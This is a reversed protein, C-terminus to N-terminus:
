FQPVQIRVRHRLANMKEAGSWNPIQFIDKAWNAEYFDKKYMVTLDLATAVDNENIVNYNRARKRVDDVFLLIEEDATNRFPNPFRNKIYEVLKLNANHIAMEEFQHM